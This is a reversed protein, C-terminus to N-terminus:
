FEALLRWTGDEFVMRAVGDSDGARHYIKATNGDTDVGVVAIQVKGFGPDAKMILGFYERPTLEDISQDDLGLHERILARGSSKRKNDELQEAVKQRSEFALYEYLGEVDGENMTSVIESAASEASASKSCGQISGLAFVSLLLVFGIRIM